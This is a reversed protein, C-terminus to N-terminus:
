FHLFFHETGMASRITILGSIHHNTAVGDPTVYRIVQRNKTQVTYEKKRIQLFEREPTKIHLKWESWMSIHQCNAISYPMVLIETETKRSLTIGPCCKARAARVLSCLKSLLVLSSGLSASFITATWKCVRTGGLAGCYIATLTASLSCFTIM